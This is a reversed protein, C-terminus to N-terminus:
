SDCKESLDREVLECNIGCAVPMDKVPDGADPPLEDLFVREGRYKTIQRGLYREMRSMREFTEPFDVRIKNWYGAGGKVCGICNANSYGLSYMAPLSIGAREVLALCDSKGLGKDILPCCLDVEPNSDIFRNARDEEESTYGFIQVDDDRQYRKRVLKKLESTCLAGSPGVLFRRKEFVQYISGDYKENRLVTIKKGFWRECDWLFRMNDPHEERVHCYVVEADPREALTLKAAVASAAGCSFWCVVRSM